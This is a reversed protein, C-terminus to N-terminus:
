VWSSGQGSVHPLRANAHSFHGDFRGLVPLFRSMYESTCVSCFPIPIFYEVEHQLVEAKAAHAAMDKPLAVIAADAAKPKDGPASAAAHASGWHITEALESEVRATAEAEHLKVRCHGV